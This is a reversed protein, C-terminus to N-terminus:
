FDGASRVLLNGLSIGPSKLEANV